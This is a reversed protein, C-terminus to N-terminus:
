IITRQTFIQDRCGGNSIFGDQEKRSVGDEAKQMRDLMIELFVKSAICLLTVDRERERLTVHQQLLKM